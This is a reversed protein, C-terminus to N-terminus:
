TWAPCPRSERVPCAWSRPWGCRRTRWGPRWAGCRAGPVPTQRPRRASRGSSRGGWSRWRDCPRRPRGPCGPGRPPCWPFSGARRGRAGSSRAAPMTTPGSGSLRAPGSSRRPHRGCALGRCGPAPGSPALSHAWRRCAPRHPRRGTSPVCGRWASQRAAHWRAGALATGTSGTGRCRGSCRRAAQVRPRCRARDPGPWASPSQSPALGTRFRAPRRSALCQRRRPRLCRRRGRWSCRM